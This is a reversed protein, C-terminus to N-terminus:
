GLLAGRGAMLVSVRGVSIDKVAGGGVVRGCDTSLQWFQRLDLSVAHLVSTSALLAGSKEHM